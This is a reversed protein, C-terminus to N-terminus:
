QVAVTICAIIRTYAFEVAYARLGLGAICVYPHLGLDAHMPLGQFLLLRM